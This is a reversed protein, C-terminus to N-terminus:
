NVWNKAKSRPWFEGISPLGEAQLDVIMRRDPLVMLKAGCKPCVLWDTQGFEEETVAFSFFAGIAHVRRTGHFAVELQGLIEPKDSPPKSVYKLLHLLAKPGRVRAQQIWAVQNGSVEQWTAALREQEIYPGYVLVHAHLNTNNFGVEAVWIAGWGRM